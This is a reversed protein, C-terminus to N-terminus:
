QRSDITRPSIRSPFLGALRLLRLFFYMCYLRDPLRLVKWDEITPFFIRICCYRVRDAFCDKALLHFRATEAFGPERGNRTFLRMMVHERLTQVFRDGAVAAAIEAPVNAAMLDHALGLGLLFTRRLGAATAMHLLRQWDLNPTADILKAVDWVASLKPWLHFTGHLCLYLLMIDAPLAPVAHGELLVTEHGDFLNFPSLRTTFYDAAFRWHVDLSAIGQVPLFTFECARKLHSKEQAPTFAYWLRYGHGGLLQAVKQIDDRRVMLDLDAFQRLCVDGYAQVALVPGKFPIAPINASKLLRLVKVLESVMILNGRSHAKFFEQFHAMEQQPLLGYELEKLRSCLLPLVGHELATHRLAAWDAGRTLLKRVPEDHVRDARILGLLVEQELTLHAKLPLDRM